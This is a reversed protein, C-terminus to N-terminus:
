VDDKERRKQELQIALENLDQESLESLDGALRKIKIATEEVLDGTLTLFTRRDPAAKYNPDSASEILAALVDARHEFLPAAQLVTVTEDIAPNKSRWTYIVRPGKLGIWNALGAITDPLRSKRPTAAWAIYMALKHSWGAELLDQYTGFWEPKVDRAEFAQRALELRLQVEEQNETADLVDPLEVDLLLQKLTGPSIKDIAM